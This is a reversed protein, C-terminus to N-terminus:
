FPWKLAGLYCLSLTLWLLPSLFKFLHITESLLHRHVTVLVSIFLLIFTNTFHFTMKIRMALRHIHFVIIWSPYLLSFSDRIHVPLTASVRNAIDVFPFWTRSPSPICCQAFSKTFIFWLFGLSQGWHFYSIEFAWADKLYPALPYSLKKGNIIIKSEHLSHM